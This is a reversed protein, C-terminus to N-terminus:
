KDGAVDMRLALSLKFRRAEAEHQADLNVWLWEPDAALDAASGATALAESTWPRVTLIFGDGRVTLRSGEGYLEAWRVERRAGNEQARPGPAQLSAVESVFLGQRVALGADPYAEGPGLGLWRVTDLTRPVAMRMGLRPVPVSWSGLPSGVVDLRLAGDDTRWRYEVEYGTDTGAPLVHAVASLANEEEAVSVTRHLLRDLGLARWADAQSTGPGSEDQVTPARWLDLRPGLVAVGGLAVLWGARDFRGQGLAWGGGSLAVAPADGAPRAPVRGGRATAQSADLRGQGWAMVHGAPAWPLARDLEARVTLWRQPQEGARTPAAVDPLRPLAVTASEGPGLLPVELAGSAVPVGDDEAVFAFRLHSTTRHSYRSQVTVGDRADVRVTVPAFARATEALGPLATGDPLVLAQWAGVFGGALRPYEEFLEVFHALGRTGPQRAGADNVLVFPLARRRRDASQDASPPEEARGILETEASDIGPRAYVDAACADPDDPVLLLREPDRARAWAAMADVNDGRALGRGLSWGIICPHGKDREVTRKVRDLLADHWAPDAGPSRRWEVHEFGRIDVGCEEVAWLGYEDCLDLVHSPVTGRIMVANMGQQKMLVVDALPTGASPSWVVGRLRLPVGNALLTADQIAISRFGVAIQVTEASPERVSVTGRYLRPLEASWPEVDPVSVEENACVEIGLEDVRVVAGPPGEVSLRGAGTSADFGAHVFLDEIGGHPGRVLSVSGRLGPSWGATGGELYSGASWTFVRVAVLNRDETLEETVDFEHVLGSGMADGVRTGNVFVELASDAAEFRLAWRGGSDVPPASFWRRYEGVPNEDPVEPPDIPFPYSTQPVAPVATGTEEPSWRHPVNVREWGADDYGPEEFGPRGCRLGRPLLRFSWEGDLAVREADTELAARAPLPAHHPATEAFWSRGPRGLTM